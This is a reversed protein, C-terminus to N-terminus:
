SIERALEIIEKFTRKQSIYKLSETSLLLYHELLCRYEEQNRINFIRIKQLTKIFYKEIHM